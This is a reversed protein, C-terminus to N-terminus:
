LVWQESGEVGFGGMTYATAGPRYNKQDGEQWSSHRLGECAGVGAIAGM